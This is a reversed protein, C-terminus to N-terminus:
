YGDVTFAGAVVVAMGHGWVLGCWVVGCWVVGCWVVCVVEGGGGVGCWM